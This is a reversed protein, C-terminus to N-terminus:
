NKLLIEHNITDIAKRLDILVIGNVKGNDINAQWDGILKLLTTNCSHKPRFGSQFESM